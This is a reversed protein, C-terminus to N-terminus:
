KFSFNGKGQIWFRELSKLQSVTDGFLKDVIGEKNLAEVHKEMVRSMFEYLKLGKSSLKVITSRKDHPSAEQVLFDNEVMKRLNYSVNSGLYYGRQTLEGVSVQDKGVNYLILAQTNNIDYIRADDLEAKINELFLRHLREILFVVKLYSSETKM